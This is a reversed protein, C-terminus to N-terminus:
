VHVEGGLIMQYKEGIRKAERLIREADVTLFRGRELLPVGDVYVSEARLGANAYVLAARPDYLPQQGPGTLDFVALDARMGVAIRGTEPLGLAEAGNEMAMVLCQPATIREHLLGCLALERLLSLSNNSAAGDTGLCLRVGADQLRAAPAVGNQLKLNSASNLVVAVGRAALLQIDSETLQVCHAAVTGPRLLGCRDYFEVPSCGYKERVTQIESRSEALHTHLSMDHAEALDAVQRLYDETCTYPAHPGLMCSIRPHSQLDKAEALAEHIRRNGGAEDEGGGALGRSLVAKMGIADVAEAVAGPFMHMDLFATVGSQLMEMCGLLTSYKAEVPTMQEELPMVRGFLWDSFSLDDGCCRLASMYAHTHANVLGPTILRGACPIIRYEAADEPARDLAIIRGEAVYVDCVRVEGGPM